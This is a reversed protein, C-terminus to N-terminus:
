QRKQGALCAPPHILPALKRGDLSIYASSPLSAPGRRSNGALPIAIADPVPMPSAAVDAPVVPQGETDLGAAYDAGM